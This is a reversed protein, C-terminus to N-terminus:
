EPRELGLEAWIPTFDFAPRGARRQRESRTEMDKLLAILKPRKSKERAAERPTRGDLFPLPEDPWRRYHQEYFAAIAQAAIEPPIPPPEPEAYTHEAARKLDEHETVRFRVLDAAFSELLRRGRAARERSLAEFVVRSGGLVFTGIVRDADDVKELWPYRDDDGHAIEPRAALRIRLAAPDSVDFIAKSPLIQDGEPTRLDAPPTLAVVDLWLHHYVMAVDKFFATLDGAPFDRKFERHERKLRKLLTAAVGAPLLYTMGDIVPVGQEGLVIRGVILDWRVLQRTGLREQVSIRDGSWLDRLDLGEDTRVHTIEYPRLQTLRMRALYRREGSRLERAHRELFREVLTDGGDLSYDFVFWEEFAVISQELELARGVEDSSRGAVWDAWFLAEATDREGTFEDRRSFRALRELAREREDRTFAVAPSRPKELCCKKFKKGSGCPCPDNRGPRQSMPVIRM